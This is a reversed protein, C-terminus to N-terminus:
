IQGINPVNAAIHYQNLSLSLAEIVEVAGESDTDKLSDISEEGKGMRDIHLHDQIRSSAAADWDYLELDYKEWPKTLPDSCWPLYEDLHEDGPVPMLGFTDLVRHTLPEIAPDTHKWADRLAPYLDEGTRKDRIDM